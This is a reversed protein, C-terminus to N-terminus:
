SRRKWLFVNYVKRVYGSKTYELRLDVYRKNGSLREQENHQYVTNILSKAQTASIKKWAM